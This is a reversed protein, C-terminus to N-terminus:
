EVVQYSRFTANSEKNLLLMLFSCENLLTKWRDRFHKKDDGGFAVRESKSSGVIEEHLEYM